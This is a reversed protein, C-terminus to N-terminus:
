QESHRNQAIRLCRKCDPMANPKRAVVVLSMPCLWDCVRIFYNPFKESDPRYYFHLKNDTIGKGVQYKNEM